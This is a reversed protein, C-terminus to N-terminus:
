LIQSISSLKEAIKVNNDTQQAMKQLMQSVDKGIENLGSLHEVKQNVLSELESILVTIEATSTNTKEALKTVENAVVTFGRGHQGARAAEITANFGLLKTRSAVTQILSIIKDTSKIREKISESLGQITLQSDQFKKIASGAYQVCSQTDGSLSTFSEQLREAMGTLENQMTLDYGLDLTGIVRGAGNRVPLVIAKLPYGYVEAPIVGTFPRGTRMVEHDPDDPPISDGAKVGLDFQRGPLVKLFTSGDTVAVTNDVPFLDQIYKVAVMLSNLIEQNSIDDNYM